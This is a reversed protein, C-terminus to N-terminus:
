DALASALPTGHDDSFVKGNVSLTVASLKDLVNEIRLFGIIKGQHRVIAHLIKQVKRAILFHHLHIMFIEDAVIRKVIKAVVPHFFILSFYVSVVDNLRERWLIM